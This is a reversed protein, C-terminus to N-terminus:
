RRRAWYCVAAIFVDFIADGVAFSQPVLDPSLLGPRHAIDILAHAVFAIAAFVLGDRPERTLIVGALLVFVVGATVEITGFPVATNAIALGISVGATAALLMAAWQALRLEGILREPESPDLRSVRWGFMGTAGASLVAVTLILRSTDSM